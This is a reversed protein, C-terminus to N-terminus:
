RHVRLPATDWSLIPVAPWGLVTSADEIVGVLSDSGGVVDGGIASSLLLADSYVGRCGHGKIRM